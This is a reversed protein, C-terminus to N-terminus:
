EVQNWRVNLVPPDAAGLQARRQPPDPVHRRQAVPDEPQEAPGRDPKQIRERWAEDAVIGRTDPMAIAGAGIQIRRQAGVRVRKRLGLKVTVVVRGTAWPAIGDVRSHSAEPAGLVLLVPETSDGNRSIEHEATSRRRITSHTICSLIM